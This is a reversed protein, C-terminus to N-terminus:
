EGAAEAERAKRVGDLMRRGSSNGPELELFRVLVSEAEDWRHKAIRYMALNYVVQPDDPALRAAEVVLEGAEPERDLAILVQALELKLMPDDPNERIAAELRAAEAEIEDGPSAPSPPEGPGRELSAAPEDGAEPADKRGALVLFAVAVAIAAVFVVAIWRGSRRSEPGAPSDM